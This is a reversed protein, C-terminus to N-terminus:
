RCVEVRRGIDQPSKGLTEQRPVAGGSQNRAPHTEKWQQYCEDLFRRVPELVEQEYEPTDERGPGYKKEFAEELKREL